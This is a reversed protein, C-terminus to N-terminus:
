SSSGSSWGSLRPRARQCERLCARISVLASAGRDHRRPSARQQGSDTARLPRVSWGSLGDRYGAVGPRHAHRCGHGLPSAEVGLLRRAKRCAVYCLDLAASGNRRIGQSRRMFDAFFGLYFDCHERRDYPFGTALLADDLEGVTSVAIPEGNLRAGGGRHAVFTEDRIPDHVIGFLLERGRGLALSVAFQPYAHAFNTTGDLPDLYWVFRDDDPPVYDDSTTSEEAIARHDPFAAKIQALMSAEIARDTETVLDVAGKHTITKAGRWASKLM